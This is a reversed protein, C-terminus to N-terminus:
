FPSPNVFSSPSPFPPTPLFPLPCPCCCGPKVRGRPSARRAERRAPMGAAEQRGGRRGGVPRARAVPGVGPSGREGAARARTRPRPGGRAAWLPRARAERRGPERRTGGPRATEAAIRGDGLPRPWAPRPWDRDPSRRCAPFSATPRWKPLLATSPQPTHLRVPFPAAPSPAAPPPAPAGRCVCQPLSDPTETWQEQLAANSRLM